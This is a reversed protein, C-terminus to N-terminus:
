EKLAGTMGEIFYKQFALFIIIIPIISIITSAAVYGFKYAFQGKLYSLAAALPYKSPDQLVIIPWIFSNWFAMFNLIVVTALAPKISPLMIRWWIMFEGAGDIRAADDLGKPVTIYAQRLLFVNFVTVASPLIVGAFTNALGLKKITIFNVIMGTANPLIMTAIMAYFIINKGKFDFKALPYATLASLLLNSVVGFFAIIVTNMIYKPISMFNWVGRYNEFTISNPIISMNYVNQPTKLSTSLM